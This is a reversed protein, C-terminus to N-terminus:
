HHHSSSSVSKAKAAESGDADYDAHLDFPDDKDFDAVFQEVEHPKKNDLYPDKPERIVDVDVTYCHRRNINYFRRELQSFAVEMDDSLERIRNWGRRAERAREQFEADLLDETANLADCVINCWTGCVKHALLKSMRTMQIFGAEPSDPRRSKRGAISKRRPGILEFVEDHVQNASLGEDFVRELLQKREAKKAIHSLEILHNFTLPVGTEVSRKALEDLQDKSFAKYFRVYGAIAADRINLEDQLHLIADDGYETPNSIIEHFTEGVRHRFSLHDALETQFGAKLERIKVTLAPWIEGKFEKSTPDHKAM